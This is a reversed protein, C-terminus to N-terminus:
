LTVFSVHYKDIYDEMDKRIEDALRLARKLDPTPHPIAHLDDTVQEDPQLHRKQNNKEKM